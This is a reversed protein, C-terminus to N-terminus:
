RPSLTSGDVSLGAASEPTSALAADCIDPRYFGESQTQPGAGDWRRLRELLWRGQAPDPRTVARGSFRLAARSALPPAFAGALAEPAAGVAGPEALTALLERRNAPDDAWRGAATLARIMAQLARANREAWAERVALVKDPAGPQLEAAHLLIRGAGAIEAVTNWPAGVSFGDLEGGRLAEVMATPPLVRLRVDRDPDVGGAALWDRILHAHTSIAFVVGFTLQPTGAAVRRRVEERLPRASVDRGDFLSALGPSLTVAAGNVNLGMPAILESREGSLGLRVALALSALMHAGDVLGTALKDRLTAWSVERRLAVDLGEAAFLGRREAVILPAADTLAVFGLQFQGLGTM